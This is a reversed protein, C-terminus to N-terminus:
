KGWVPKGGGREVTRSSSSCWRLRGCILSVGRNFCRCTSPRKVKSNLWEKGRPVSTVAFGNDLHLAKFPDQFEVIVHSEWSEGDHGLGDLTWPSSWSSPPELRAPSCDIPTWTWHKFFARCWLEGGSDSSRWSHYLEVALSTIKYSFVALPFRIRFSTHAVRHHPLQTAAWRWPSHWAFCTRSSSSARIRYILRPHDNEM